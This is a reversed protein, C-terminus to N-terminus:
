DAIQDINLPAGWIQPFRNFYITSMSDRVRV